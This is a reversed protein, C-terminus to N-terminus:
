GAQQSQKHLQGSALVAKWAAELQDLASITGAIFKGQKTLISINNRSDLDDNTLILVKILLVGHIKFGNYIYDLFYSHWFSYTREMAWSEPNENKKNSVAYAVELGCITDWSFYISDNKKIGETAVQNDFFYERGSSSKIVGHNNKIWFLIGSQSKM